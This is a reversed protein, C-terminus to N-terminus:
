CVIGGRGQWGIEQISERTDEKTNGRSKDTVDATLMSLTTTNRGHFGEHGAKVVLDFRGEREPSQECFGDTKNAGDGTAKGDAPLARIDVDATNDSVM